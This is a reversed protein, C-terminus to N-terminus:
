RVAPGDGDNDVNMHGEEILRDKAVFGRGKRALSLRQQQELHDFKTWGRLYRSDESSTRSYCFVLDAFSKAVGAIIAQGMKNVDLLCGDLHQQRTRAVNIADLSCWESVNSGCSRVVASRHVVIGVLLPPSITLLSLMLLVPQNSFLM